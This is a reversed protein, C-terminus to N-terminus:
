RRNNEGVRHLAMKFTVPGIIQNVAIIALVVTNLHVGIEPFQRAALQALGISVGAQTVYTMWANRNYVPPDHSIVGALWSGSFLGAMRVGVICLALPWCLILSNFNLSAGAISFFLAYIPLSMRELSELFHSGFRSFNQVFFGASMCILLPELHLSIDYQVEMIHNVWLSLRAVGFAIFLLFLLFDRRVRNIYVSITWGLLAGIILSVIIEALLGSIETMHIVGGGSIIMKSVALAMTFIVIILVDTVITVALVMGTFPGKAKCENIVAIASSPSRAICIVGILMAFIFLSVPEFGTTFNFYPSIHIILLMVAGLVIVAMFVINLMISKVQGSISSLKLEGGATLAIFSLALDNILSLRDVMEVTLFGSVYPGALIGAFIYGSILPLKITKVLQAIVYALLMVFGLSFIIMGAQQRGSEIDIGKIWLGFLGMLLLIMVYSLLNDKDSYGNSM